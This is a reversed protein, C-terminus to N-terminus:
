IGPRHHCVAVGAVCVWGSAMLLSQAAWEDYLAARLQALAVGTHCACARGVRRAATSVVGSLAGGDAESSHRCSSASSNAGDPQNQM